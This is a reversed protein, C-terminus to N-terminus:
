KHTLLVLNGTPDIIWFGDEKKEYTVINKLAQLLRDKSDFVINYHRMGANEKPALPKNMGHWANMAIRHQYGGGAGVDAYMFQPLFNFQVFGLQKYFADSKEVNNTYLHFHGIKAEDSIITSLDKDLLNKLVGEVDLGTSAARIIGDTGEIKLGGTSLVRKFREPTELTFEITIGDPDKLYVSKSMTHDTPSCPYNNVLLRYLMKAFEQKTPPHIAFHYLGSYGEKFAAKATQHAVILTKNESGFEAMENTSDRLKMGVIKTWFETAKELSTNNLHIAGFSAIESSNNHEQNTNSVAHVISSFKDMSM